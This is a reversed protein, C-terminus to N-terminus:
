NCALKKHHTCKMLINRKIDKKRKHAKFLTKHFIKRNKRSKFNSIKGGEICSFGKDQTKMYEM